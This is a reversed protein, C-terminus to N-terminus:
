PAKQTAICRIECYFCRLAVYFRCFPAKRTSHGCARAISIFYIWNEDIYASCITADKRFALENM